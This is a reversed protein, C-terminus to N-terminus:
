FLSIGVLVCVCLQITLKFIITLFTRIGVLGDGNMQYYLFVQLFFFTTYSLVQQKSRFLVFSKTKGFKEVATYIDNHSLSNTIGELKVM